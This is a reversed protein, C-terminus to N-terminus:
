HINILTVHACRIYQEGESQHAEYSPSQILARAAHARGSSLSISGPPQFFYSAHKGDVLAFDYSDISVIDIDWDQLDDGDADAASQSWGKTWQSPEDEVM